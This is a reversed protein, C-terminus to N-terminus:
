LMAAKVAAARETMEEGRTRGECNCDSRHCGGDNVRSMMMARMAALKIAMAKNGDSEDRQM